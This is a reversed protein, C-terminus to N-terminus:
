SASKIDHVDIERRHFTKFTMDASDRPGAAVFQENTMMWIEPSIDPFGTDGKPTAHITTIHLLDALPMAERYIAGGGGIMVSDAGTEAAIAAGRSLAITLSSVAEVGEAQFDPNRTVVINPRDPLPKGISQFTRRGMILPKGITMRKFHAFDTPCRWPLDNDAGIVGNEAVAAIMALPVAM